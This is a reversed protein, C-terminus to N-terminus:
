EKWPFIMGKLTRKGIRDKEDVLLETWPVENRKAEPHEELWDYKFMLLRLAVDLYLLIGAPGFGSFVTFFWLVLQIPIMIFGTFLSLGLNDLMILLSKKLSKAVSGSLRNRVPFYWIVTLYVAVSLWFLFAMAALGLMNGLSSYYLIGFVSIVCFAATVVCLFLSAFWTSELTKLIESWAPRRYDAINSLMSSIVGAAIFVLPIALVLFFWGWTKGAEFLKLMPWFGAVLLLMQTLNGLIVTGLNDWADFFSKKITLFFM